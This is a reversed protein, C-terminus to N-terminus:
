QALAFAHFALAEIAKVKLTRVIATKIAEYTTFHYCQQKIMVGRRQFTNVINEVM